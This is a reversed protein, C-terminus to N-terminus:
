QFRRAILIKERQEQHSLAFFEDELYGFAKIARAEGPTVERDVDEEWDEDLGYGM